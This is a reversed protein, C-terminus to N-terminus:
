IIVPCFATKKPSADFTAEDAVHTEDGDGIQKIGM